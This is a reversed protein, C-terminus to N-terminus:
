MTSIFEGAYEVYDVTIKGGIHNIRRYNRTSESPRDGFNVGGKFYLNENMLAKLMFAVNENPSDVIFSVNKLNLLFAMVPEGDYSIEEYTILAKNVKFKTDIIEKTSRTSFTLGDLPIEEYPSDDFGKVLNPLVNETPANIYTTDQGAVIFDVNYHVFPKFRKTVGVSYKKGKLVPIENGLGEGVLFDLLNGERIIAANAKSAVFAPTDFSFKYGASKIGAFDAERLTVQTYTEELEGSCGAFVGVALVVILSFSFFKLM